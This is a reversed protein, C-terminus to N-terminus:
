VLAIAGVALGIGAAHALRHRSREDDWAALEALVILTFTLAPTHNMQTAGLVLVFPTFLFLLSAARATPEDFARRTVRYTPLDAIVLLLPNVLSVADLLLGAALLVPGGIPYQSFWRGDRELVSVTNFFEPYDPAPLALHGAVLM